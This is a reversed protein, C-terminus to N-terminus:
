RAVARRTTTRKGARAAFGAMVVVEDVDGRRTPDSNIARPCKVRDVRLGRYLSRILPTDSNSLVVACGREALERVTNALTAQDDRSFGDGTYATFNATTTVPDYPPDFYVLDGPGADAVADRYDGCLLTAGRLVASARGITEADYIAPNKYRGMPVNFGGGKNVRWLGNFCTRNLYIFTAARDLVSWSVARDNWRARTQYYHETGHADRHLALRRLVGDPDAAVARYMGILDANRDSLVAATPGLHFFLAAGGAFPEYYRRYGQPLRTALEPLLKTKGGVWKIIPWAASPARTTHEPVARALKPATARRRVLRTSENSVM